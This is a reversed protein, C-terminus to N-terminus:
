EVNSDNLTKEITNKERLQAYFEKVTKKLEEENAVGSCILKGTLFVLFTANSEQTKYIAAPFTNPEYIADFESTFQELSVSAGSIAVSAVLNKVGWEVGCGGSVLEKTKLQELLTTIAEQGKNETKIGTCVFKGNQFLLFSASPMKLKYILGPFKKWDRKSNELKQNATDLNLNESFTGIIVVNELTIALDFVINM